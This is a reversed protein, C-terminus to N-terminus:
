AVRGHRKIVTMRSGQALQKLVRYQKGPGSRMNLRSVLVEGTEVSRAASSWSLAILLVLMAFHKFTPKM